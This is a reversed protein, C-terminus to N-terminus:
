VVTKQEETIKKVIEADNFPITHHAFIQEKEHGKGAILVIDEPRKQELAFQIAKERDLEISVPKTCGSLIEEVIKEPNESRPNDSTLIVIDSLETAIKGMKPRKERDRDGGCGFVTILRGKALSKLTECVNKLANEKHAHDIFIGEKIRQIRGSVGKFTKLGAICADLSVGRCLCASFAALVNYINYRGILPSSCETQKGQYHLTCQSKKESLRINAARLNAEKKIGYTFVKAETSFSAPDDANFIAWKSADLSAFLKAKAAFYNEMTKHYDLHEHTFNTFVGMSFQIEEVRNQDLAHSTVEMAAVKCGFHLMDRLLKHNTIVDQTTLPSPFRHQGFVCEVGGLLGCSVGAADFLHKVLYSTTTKGSTGTIGIVDMSQSPFHYFQAALLPEIRQPHPHILQTVKLFPDYIDTLIAIAGASIAEPIFATGDHSLGKKAIFLNGPAVLSSHSSLGSIEIEKSGKVEIEPLNQILTKIKM